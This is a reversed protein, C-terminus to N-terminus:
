PPTSTPQATHMPANQATKDEKLFLAFFDKVGKGPPLPSVQSSLQRPHLTLESLYYSAQARPFFRNLLGCPEMELLTSYRSGLPLNECASAGKTAGRLAAAMGAGEQSLELQRSALCWLIALALAAKASCGTSIM